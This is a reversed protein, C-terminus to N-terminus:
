LRGIISLSISEPNDISPGSDERAQVDEQEYAVGVAVRNNIFYESSVGFINSSLGDGSRDKMGISAGISLKKNFHYNIVANAGFVDIQNEGAAYDLTVSGSMYDDGDAEVIGEFEIDYLFTEDTENEDDIVTYGITLASNDTTYLGLGVGYAKIDSNVSGAGNEQEGQEYLLEYIFREGAVIRASLGVADFEDELNDAESSAVVWSVSSSKNLFAVHAYPGVTDDVPNLYYTVGGQYVDFDARNSSNSDFVKSQTGLAGVEFTYEDAMVALPLSCIATLLLTQRM